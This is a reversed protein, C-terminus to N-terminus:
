VRHNSQLIFQQHMFHSWRVHQNEGNFGGEFYDEPIVGSFWQYDQEGIELKVIINEEEIFVELITACKDAQILSIFDAFSNASFCFLLFIFLTRKM